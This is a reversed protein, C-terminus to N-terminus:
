ATKGTRGRRERGALGVPQRLWAARTAAGDGGAADM